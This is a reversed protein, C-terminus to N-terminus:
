STACCYKHKVKLHKPRYHLDLLSLGHAAVFHWVCLNRVFYSTAEPLIQTLKYHITSHKAFYYVSRDRLM